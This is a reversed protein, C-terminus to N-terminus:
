GLSSESTETDGLLRERERDGSEDENRGFIDFNLLFM